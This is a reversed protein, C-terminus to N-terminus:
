KGIVRVAIFFKYCIELSAKKMNLGNEITLLIPSHNLVPIDLLALIIIM